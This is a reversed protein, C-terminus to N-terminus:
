AAASGSFATRRRDPKPLQLTEGWYRLADCGHDDRKVPKVNQSLPKDPWKYNALEGILAPCGSTLFLKENNFLVALKAVGDTVKLSSPVVVGAVTQELAHILGKSSQDVTWRQVSGVASFQASMRAAQEDESLPGNQEADWRWEDVVFAGLKTHAVLVAHSVSKNAWDVGATFMMPVVGDPLDRLSGEPYPKTANPYVRGSATSWIGHIFRDQQWKHPYNILLEDYYEATVAPNDSPRCEIVKGTLTEARIADILEVKFPHQQDDPNTAWWGKAQAPSLRSILMRRLDDQMNVAEDTYAGMFTPGQIRAVPNEGEGFVSVMFENPRDGVMSPMVWLDGKLRVDLDMSDAWDQVERKVVSQMLARSKTLFCFLQGTFNLYAWQCFGRIGAASKGSRMSGTIVIHKVPLDAARLIELQKDSPRFM